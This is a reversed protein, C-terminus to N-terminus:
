ARPPDLALPDGGLGGAAKGPAEGASVKKARGHEAGLIAQIKDPAVKSANAKDVLARLNGAVREGDRRSDGWAASTTITQVRM